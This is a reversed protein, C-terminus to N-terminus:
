IMLQNYKGVIFDGIKEPELLDSQENSPATSEQNKTTTTSTKNNNAESM